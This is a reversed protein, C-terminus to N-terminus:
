GGALLPGPPEPARGCVPRTALDGDTVPPDYPRNDILPEPAPEDKERVNLL